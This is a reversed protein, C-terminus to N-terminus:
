REGSFALRERLQEEALETQRRAAAHRREAAFQAYRRLWDAPGDVIPWAKISALLIKRPWPAFLTYLEDDAATIAEGSGPDGQRGARGYLQRDIRATEHFATLIVHLGGAARAEDSLLIDTGRGAMNTAVTVSGCLGAAAIIAAEEADQRANLVRHAIGLAALAASVADSDAVSRTGM